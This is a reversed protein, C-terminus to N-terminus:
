GQSEKKKEHGDGWLLKFCKHCYYYAIAGIYSVNSSGCYPCHLRVEDSHPKRM